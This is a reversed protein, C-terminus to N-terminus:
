HLALHNILSAADQASTEATNIEIAGEIRVTEDWARLRRDVDVPDRAALRGAAIDRPCWLAIVLWQVDPTAACILDIAEVQGLHVVPTHRNVHDALTERDIAYTAGYRQNEWVIAGISRLAALDAETTVRYGSAKGPGVKLRPFLVYRPDLEQLAHTITDKGSAPPGYLIIGQM